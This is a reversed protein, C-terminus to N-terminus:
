KALANKLAAEDLKRVIPAHQVRIEPGFGPIPGAQNIGPMRLKPKKPTAQPDDAARESSPTSSLVSPPRATTGPATPDGAIVTPAPSAGWRGFIWGSAKKSLSPRNMQRQDAAVGRLLSHGTDEPRSFTAAHMGHAHAGSVSAQSSFSRGYPTLLQSPRTQLTHIDMGSISLLSEHSAARRLTPKYIDVGGFHDDLVDNMVSRTGEDDLSRNLDPSSSIEWEDEREEPIAGHEAGLGDVEALHEISADIISDLAPRCANPTIGGRQVVPASRTRFSGLSGRKVHTAGFVPSGPEETDPTTPRSSEYGVDSFVRDYMSSAQNTFSRPSSPGSTGPMSQYTQNSMTSLSSLRKRNPVHQPVSVATQQLITAMSSPTGSSISSRPTSYGSAHSSTLSGYRKKKVRRAPAPKSPNVTPAHYHHHVHLEQSAARSMEERLDNCALAAKGSPNQQHPEPDGMSGQDTLRNRLAEVEDNSTQLMERLEVIGMQLNANDQLIDKVFHSVVNPAGGDRNVTRTAAAGKLRGAASNLESEVAHRREMRSVVEAHREKEARSEREIDEFQEQLAVLSKEALQWRRVAAKESENKAQISDQWHLQQQEFDALEQELRATRGALHSLKQLEQQASLLTAQLSTVHADSETSETNLAELQNLLSRNDEIVSANKRELVQKEMELTDIHVMMAKRERESDAVYAEHRTLLAQLSFTLPSLTKSPWMQLAIYGCRADARQRENSNKKREYSAFCEFLASSCGM